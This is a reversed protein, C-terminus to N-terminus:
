DMEPKAKPLLFSLRYAAHYRQLKIVTDRKLRGFLPSTKMPGEHALLREVAEKLRGVEKKDQGSPCPAAPEDAASRSPWVGSALIRRIYIPAITFRLVPSMINLPFPFKPYGDMPYTMLLTIQHCSQGLDWTGIKDYGVALLHEADRVADRLDNFRLRRRKPTPM